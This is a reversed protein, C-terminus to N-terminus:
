DFKRKYFWFDHLTVSFSLFVYKEQVLNNELSGRRGMNCAMNFSSRGGRLPLGLGFTIGSNALQEGNVMLYTKETYAGLRYHVLNFYGRLAEPDPTVELGARLSSSNVLGQSAGMISAQSWDQRYYDLGLLIKQKYSLGIGAGMRTPMVVTGSVSDEELIYSPDLFTSDNLATGTGAFLNKKTLIRQAGLEAKNDFILGLTLTYDDAFTQYFQLGMDYVFGNILTRSSVKSLSYTRKLPFEVSNEVELAGFVYSFNAGLSLHHFLEFSTGLFLKDLGGSGKYLFDVAGVHQLFSEERINYGVYSYPMVGISAKWWPTLPFGIALHDMNINSAVQSLDSTEYTVYRSNMGFDFLFTLTDQSTYSAPNLYNLQFHDRLALGTRGMARGRAFGPISLEGIGYHSYPSNTNMQASLENLCFFLTLPLIFKVPNSM